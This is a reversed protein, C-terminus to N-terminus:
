NRNRSETLPLVNESKEEERKSDSKKGRKEDFKEKIRKRKDKKERM